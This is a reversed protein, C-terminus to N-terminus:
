NRTDTREEPRRLYSRLAQAVIFSTSRNREDALLEARKALHKPLYYSYSKGHKKKAMVLFRLCTLFM